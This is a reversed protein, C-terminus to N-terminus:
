KLTEKLEESLPALLEFSPPENTQQMHTICKPCNQQFSSDFLAILLLITVPNYPSVLILNELMHSIPLSRKVDGHASWVYSLYKKDKFGQVLMVLDEPYLSQHQKNLQLVLEVKPEIGDEVIGYIEVTKEM